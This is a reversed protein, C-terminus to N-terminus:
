TKNMVSPLKYQDEATPHKHIHVTCNIFIEVYSHFYICNYILETGGNNLVLELLTNFYERMIKADIVWLM